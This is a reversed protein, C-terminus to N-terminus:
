FPGSVLEPEPSPDFVVQDPFQEESTLSANKAARAKSFRRANLTDRLQTLQPLTLDDLRAHGFKDRMISDAYPRGLQLALHLVLHKQRRIEGFEPHDTEVTLQVDSVLMGLHAYLKDIDTTANLENMSKVWRGIAQSIIRLRLPRDNKDWGQAHCAAPWRDLLLSLRQKPTM